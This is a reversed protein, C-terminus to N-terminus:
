APAYLADYEPIITDDTFQWTTIGLPKQGIFERIQNLLNCAASGPWADHECSQYELNDCAAWITAATPVKETAVYHEAWIRAAKVINEDTLCPGPRHGSIDRPYRAAVSRINEVALMEAIDPASFTVLDAYVAYAAIIGFQEPNVIYASM